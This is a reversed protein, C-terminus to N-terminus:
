SDSALVASLALQVKALGGGGGGGGVSPQVSGVARVYSERAVTNSGSAHMYVMRPQVSETLIKGSSEGM